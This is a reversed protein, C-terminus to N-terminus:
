AKPSPSSEEQWPVLATCALALGVVTATAGIAQHPPSDALNGLTAWLGGVVVYGAGYYVGRQTLGPWVARLSDSLWKTM